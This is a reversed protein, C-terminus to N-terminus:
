KVSASRGERSIAELEALMTRFTQDIVEVIENSKMKSVDLPPGFLVRVPNSQFIPRGKPWAKYAGIIVAPVIPVGARKVILAVGRQIPQLTGNPSRQGEPFLTLLHGEQLRRITEDIAGKDGAGQRVPFANCQRIIWGFVPVKFLESKALFSLPRPIRVGILAPDLYSAHNAIVLAGGDAPIHHLGYVKLDFFVSTVIRCAGRCFAYAPSAKKM